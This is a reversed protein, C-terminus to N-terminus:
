MIPGPPSFGNCCWPMGPMCPIPVCIVWTGMRVEWWQGAAPAAAASDYAGTGPASVLLAATVGAIKAARAATTALREMVKVQM